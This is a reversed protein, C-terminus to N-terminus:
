HDDSGEVVVGVAMALYAAFSVSVFPLVSRELEMLISRMAEGREFHGRVDFTLAYRNLLSDTRRLLRAARQEKRLEGALAAAQRDLRLVQIVLDLVVAIAACNLRIHRGAIIRDSM